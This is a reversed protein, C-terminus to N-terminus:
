QLQGECLHSPGIALLRYYLAMGSVCDNRGAGGASMECVSPPPPAPLSTAGLRKRRARAPLRACSRLVPHKHTPFAGVCPPGECTVVTRRLSPMRGERRPCTKALCLRARAIAVPRKPALADQGRERRCARMAQSTEFRHAKRRMALALHGRGWPGGGDCPAREIPSTRFRGMTRSIPHKSHFERPWIADLAVFAREPGSADATLPM